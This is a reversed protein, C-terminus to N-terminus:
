ILRDRYGLQSDLNSLKCIEHDAAKRRFGIRRNRRFALCESESMRLRRLRIHMKLLKVKARVEEAKRVAGKMGRPGSTLVFEARFALVLIRREWSMTGRMTLILEYGRVAQIFALASTRGPHIKAARQADLVMGVGDRDKLVALSDGTECGLLIALKDLISIPNITDHVHQVSIKSAPHSLEESFGPKNPPDDGSQHEQPPEV